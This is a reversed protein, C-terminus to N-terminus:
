SPYRGARERKMAMILGIVFLIAGFAPALATEFTESATLKAPVIFLLAALIIMALGAYQWRRSAITGETTRQLATRLGWLGFIVLVVTSIMWVVAPVAISRPDITELGSTVDGDTAGDGQFILNLLSGDFAAHLIVAAIYAAALWLWRNGRAPWLSLLFYGAVMALLSHLLAGLAGRLLAFALLSRSLEAQDGLVYVYICSEILAFGLAASLLLQFGDSPHRLRSTGCKLLLAVIGIKLAEEPLAAYIFALSLSAQLDHAAQLDRQLASTLNTGLGTTAFLAVGALVFAINAAFALLALRGSVPYPFLRRFLLVYLGSIFIVVAFPLWMQHAIM